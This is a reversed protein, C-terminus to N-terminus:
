DKWLGRMKKSIEERRKGTEELDLHYGASDKVIVDGEKSEMPLSSKPVTIFTRDEDELIASQAEFRDIIYRM